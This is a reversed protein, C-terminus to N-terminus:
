IDKLGLSLEKGKLVHNVSGKDTATAENLSSEIRHNRLSGKDGPLKVSCTTKSDAVPALDTKAVSTTVIGCAPCM